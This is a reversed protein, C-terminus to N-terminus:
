HQQFLHTSEDSFNAAYALTSSPVLLKVRSLGVKRIYFDPIYLMHKELILLKWYIGINELFHRNTHAVM